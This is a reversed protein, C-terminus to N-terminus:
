PAAFGMAFMAHDVGGGGGRGALRAAQAKGNGTDRHIFGRNTVTRQSGIVQRATKSRAMRRRPAQERRPNGTGQTMQTV